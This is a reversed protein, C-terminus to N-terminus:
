PAEPPPLQGLIPLELPDPRTLAYITGAAIGAVVAGAGAWVYWRQHWAKPPEPPPPPILPPGDRLESVQTLDIGAALGAEEARTASIQVTVPAEASGNSDLVDGVKDTADVYYDVLFEDSVGPPALAAPDRVYGVWATATRQMPEASFQSLHTGKYHLTVATVTKKPDTVRVKVRVPRGGRAVVLREHLVLVDSSRVEAVLGALQDPAGDFVKGDPDIHLADVVLGRAADADPKPGLLLAHARTAHIEAVIRQSNGKQSAAVDLEELADAYRGKQALERAYDLNRNRAAFTRPAAASEAPPASAEAPPADGAPASAAAPPTEARALTATSLVAVLVCRRLTPM